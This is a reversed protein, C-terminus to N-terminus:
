KRNPITPTVLDINPHMTNKPVAWLQGGVTGSFGNQYIDRGNGPRPKVVDAPLKKPEPERESM